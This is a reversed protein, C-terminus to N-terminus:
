NNFKQKLSLIKVTNVQIFEYRLLLFASKKILASLMRGSNKTILSVPLRTATYKVEKNAHRKLREQINNTCGTYTSNDSCKLLYVYPM